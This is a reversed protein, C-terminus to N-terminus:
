IQNKYAEDNKGEGELLNNPDILKEVNNFGISVYHKTARIFAFDKPCGFVPVGWKIEESVNSVTSHILQRLETLIVRQEEMSNLIYETVKPNLSM